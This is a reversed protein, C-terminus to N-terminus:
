MLVRKSEPLSGLLHILYYAFASVLLGLLLLTAGGPSNYVTANEPRSALLAVILWPAGIALKATGLVWSQKTEITGWLAIDARLNKSQARLLEHYGTAGIENVMRILEILRDAHPEGFEAKLDLMTRDFSFGAGLKANARVFHARLGEPAHEALDGFAEVLNIGAVEASALSDLVEPWMKAVERRRARAKGQLMEVALAAALIGVCASLAIIRSVLFSWIALTAAIAVVRWLLGSVGWRALGAGELTSRLWTLTKAFM